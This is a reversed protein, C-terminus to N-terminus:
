PQRAALAEVAAIFMDVGLQYHFEPDDTATMATACEVLRPYEAPSQSALSRSRSLARGASGSRHSSCSVPSSYEPM